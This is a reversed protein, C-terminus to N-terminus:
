QITCLRILTWLYPSTNAHTSQHTPILMHPIDHTTDTPFISLNPKVHALARLALVTSYADDNWSGNPLQTFTLYNITQPAVSSIDSGSEVLALFALATEYITSPSTGFGGDPNQKTLLYSVGSNIQNQLNYVSKYQSFVDVVLATMYVNSNDGQYFGWGGDSNQTSLLFGLASSIINQGSYDTAKLAELAFATDLVTNTYDVDGGWLGGAGRSLLVLLDASIDIGAMYLTKVKKALFDTLLPSQNSLWAVGNTYTSNNINLYRLTDLAISTDFALLDTNSGWSGDPNQNNSLWGLGTNVNPSLALSFGPLILIMIIINLRVLILKRSTRNKCM